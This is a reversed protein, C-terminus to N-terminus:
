RDGRSRLSYEASRSTIHVYPLEWIVISEIEQLTFYKGLNTGRLDAVEDDLHHFLVDKFSDFCSRMETPSYSSPEKKYKEVLKALNDLGRHIAAHSELHKGGKSHDFSEIRQALFPFLQTEEITHHFTLGELHPYPWSWSNSFFVIYHKLRERTIFSTTNQLYQPLSMHCREFSGDSFIHLRNFEEKFWAHFHDM